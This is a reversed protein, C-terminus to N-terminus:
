HCALKRTYGDIVGIIFTVGAIVATAIAWNFAGGNAKKLDDNQLQKM